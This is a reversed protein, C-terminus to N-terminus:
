DKIFDNLFNLASDVDVITPKLKRRIPPNKKLTNIIYEDDAIKSDLKSAVVLLSDYKQHYKDVEIRLSDAIRMNETVRDDVLLSNYIAIGIGGFMIIGSVINVTLSKTNNQLILQSWKQKVVVPQEKRVNEQSQVKRKNQHCVLPEVLLFVSQILERVVKELKQVLPHVVHHIGVKKVKVHFILGNKKLGNPFAM